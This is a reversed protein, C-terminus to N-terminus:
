LTLDRRTLLQIRRRSAYAKAHESFKNSIVIPPLLGVDSAARDAAIVVNIGATRKWNKVFVPYVEDGKKVLLDFTRTSGSRGELSVEREVVFGLRRFYEVALNLLPESM